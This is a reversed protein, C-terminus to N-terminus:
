FNKSAAGEVWTLEVSCKELEKEDSSSAKEEELAKEPEKEESSSVNEESAKEPEKEDVSLSAKDELAKEPAEEDGSLSATGESTNESVEEKGMIVYDSMDGVMREKVGDSVGDLEEDVSLDRGGLCSFFRVVVDGVSFVYTVSLAVTYFSVFIPFAQGHDRMRWIVLLAVLLNSVILIAAVIHGRKARRLAKKSEDYGVSERNGWTLDSARTTAYAPLWVTFWLLMPLAFPASFCMQFFGRFDCRVGGYLLALVYPVFCICILIKVIMPTGAIGQTWIIGVANVIFLVTIAFNAIVSAAMITPRYASKRDSRYVTAETYRIIAVDTEVPVARPTHGLVFLTYLLFYGLGCGIALYM